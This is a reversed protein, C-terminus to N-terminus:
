TFGIDRWWEAAQVAFHTVVQDGGVRGDDVTVVLSAECDHCATEIRVDSALAAGIGLADWACNAWWSTDPGHVRFATPVASFPMAMWVEGSDPQRVIVHRDALRAYSTEVGEPLISLRDAIGARTPVAGEVFTDYIARRVRADLATLPDPPTM